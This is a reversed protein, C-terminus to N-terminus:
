APTTSFSGRRYFSSMGGTGVYFFSPFRINNRCSCSVGFITECVTRLVYTIYYGAHARADAHAISSSGFCVAPDSNIVDLVRFNIKTGLIRDLVYYLLCTATRPLLHFRGGTHDGALVHCGPGRSDASSPAVIRGAVVLRPEQLSDPESIM